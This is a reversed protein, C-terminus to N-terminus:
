VVEMSAIVQGQGSTVVATKTVSVSVLDGTAVTFSHILDSAQGTATNGLTTTLATDVGNKRVTYTDTAADVGAVSAQIYLNRVTGPRTSALQVETAPATTVYGPALFVATAVTTTDGTGFVLLAGGVGIWGTTGSGSEKFYFATAQGGDQRLFLSGIGASVSSEPSGTGTLIKPVASAAPGANGGITVVSSFGSLEYDGTATSNVNNGDYVPVNTFSGAGAKEFRCGYDSAEIVNGVVPVQVVNAGDAVVRIAAAFTGVTASIINGPGVLGTANVTSAVVDIGYAVTADADTAQCVNGGVSFNICDTVEIFNGGVTENVLANHGIRLRQPSAGAALEATICPGVSAAPDRDVLCNSLVSDLVAGFVRVAADASAYAGSTQINDNWVTYQTNSWTAFGGLVINEAVILETILTTAGGEFRLAHRTTGTHLIENGFVLLANSNLDATSVFGIDTECNTFRNEVVWGYEWGQECGVGFRSCGDFQCQAIWLRSVLNGATGVVHVGDGSSAVMGTFLCNEIHTEVVGGGAGEISVLHNERSVAPNTLGSGDFKLWRIATHQTGASITLMSGAATAANWVWKITSAEGAGVLQVSETGTQTLQTVAYTGYPFFVIGGGNADCDDIAAQINATDDAVGNGVAGYDKVSYWAFSQVLKTWATNAAGTKLWAQGTGSRLYFSGIAAAVGGGSSPDSAQQMLDVLNLRIQSASFSKTM